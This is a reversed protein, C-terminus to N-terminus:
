AARRTSSRWVRASRTPSRSCTWSPASGGTTAGSPRPSRHLYADLAEQSEWATGYIRQLQPNKESGRWYAAATRTLRFAPIFRTTPVHPGRCLDSWM